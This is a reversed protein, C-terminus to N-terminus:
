LDKDPSQRLRVPPPPILSPITYPNREGKHWGIRHRPRADRAAALVREANRNWAEVTGASLQPCSAMLETITMGGKWIRAEEKM